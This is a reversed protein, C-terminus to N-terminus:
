AGQDKIDHTSSAASILNGALKRKFADGLRRHSVIDEARLGGPPLSFSRPGSVLKITRGRNGKHIHRGNTV